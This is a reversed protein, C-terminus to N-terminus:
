SLRAGTAPQIANHEEVRRDHLRIVQIWESWCQGCRLNPAIRDFRLNHYKPFRQHLEVAGWIASNWCGECQLIFVAREEILRGITLNGVMDDVWCPMRNPMPM